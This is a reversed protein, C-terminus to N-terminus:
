PVTAPCWNSCAKGKGDGAATEQPTLIGQAADPLGLIRDTRRHRQERLSGEAENRPSIREEYALERGCFGM